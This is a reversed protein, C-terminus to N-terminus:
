VGGAPNVVVVEYRRYAFSPKHLVVAVTEVPVQVTVTLDINEEPSILEVPSVIQLPPVGVNVIPFVVADVPPLPIM